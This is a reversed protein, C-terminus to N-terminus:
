FKFNFGISPVFGFLGPQTYKFSGDDNQVVKIQFPAARNYVNYAGIHWESSYKKGEVVKSKIIFNIDLRHATSMKYSNRTAFVPIIEVGTMGANPMFYNGIIPTFRAGTCM